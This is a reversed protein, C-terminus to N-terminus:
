GEGEARPVPVVWGDLTLVPATLKRADVDKARMRTYTSADGVPAAANAPENDAGTSRSEIEREIASLATSRNKGGSELAALDKLEDITLSDLVDVMDGVNGDALEALKADPENAGPEQPTLTPEAM